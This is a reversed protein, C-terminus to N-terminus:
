WFVRFSINPTIGLSNIDTNILKNNLTNTIRFERNLLNKRDYLNLVSLGARYSVRDNSKIKFDYIASFDLRHYVPLTSGNIDDFEISTIPDNEDVGLVNTYAKGTHWLWGLSFQFKKWSYFHSWRVTHRINWNGPFGEDNNIDEFKNETNIYSYSVWTKYNHFNKKIFFDLGYIRSEGLHFTNDTPNLFGSTLTTINDIKKYYGNLDFHWKYKKYSSGLTFQYSSIIPFQEQNALTWIQNELNLDSVVSEQIKSMVQSRYEGSANLSLSSSLFKQLYLRPEFFTKKLKDYQNFRLGASIHYNKPSEFQYEAFLSHINTNSDDQDLVLEYSPTTTAFIYKVSNNSFHYGGTLKQYDSLKYFLNLSSGYDRISNKKSEIETNISPNSTIYEYDLIYKSYYGSTEFSLNKNWQHKWKANYGENETNLLDNFSQSNDSRKFDLENKAYITNIQLKSNKSFQIISNVNYDVFFFDNSENQLANTEAIKTNQFIRESLKNYTFTKLIDTYSRRGSVQVSVNNNFLPVNVYTDGHLMNFGAGGEIRAPINDDTRIDIISAIRDGYKASVGNKIFDVEKAVYPNFASLMGFFHGQNYTKIGNWLVLNQHPASGRVYLGSANEFPSNVGPVLQISKLIDPETHGPLNKVELLNINIIQKRQTIGTAIYEELIIEDLVQIDDILYIKKCDEIVFESAQFVSQKFGPASILIVSRYPIDNSEFYGKEDTNINIKNSKFFININKLPKEDQDYIYGCIKISDSRNYSRISVFNKGTIQFRLGTQRELLPLFAELKGNPDLNFTIKKGQITADIYSFKINYFQEIKAISEILSLNQYAIIKVKEQSFVQLSYIFLFSCLFRIM